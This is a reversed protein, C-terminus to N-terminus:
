RPRPAPRTHGTATGRRIPVFYVSPGAPTGDSLVHLPAGDPGASDLALAFRSLRELTTPAFPLDLTRVLTRSSVDYVALKQTGSGAIYLRSADSSVQLGVPAPSTDAAFLVPAPQAAYNKVEWIQKLESDAFYLDPGALAIAAPQPSSALREPAATASLAYIGGPSAILVTNGDFALATVPDPVGIPAAAVPAQSINGITQIQATKASYLAVASADPAWVATHIDQITGDLVTFSGRLSGLGSHIELRGARLVLAASADPAMWAADGDSVLPDGAFAAGPIGFVPRVTRDTSDYILGMVPGNVAATDAALLAFSCASFVCALRRPTM